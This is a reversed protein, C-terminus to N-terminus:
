HSSEVADGSREAQEWSVVVVEGGVDVKKRDVFEPDMVQLWWKCMQLDGNQVARVIHHRARDTIKNREAEWAQKVSPKSDIWRRATHWDCGVKDAIASVIGGTGPMANIFAQCSYRGNHGNTKEGNGNTGM